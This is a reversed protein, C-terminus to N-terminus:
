KDDIYGFNKRTGSQGQDNLGWAYLHGDSMLAM